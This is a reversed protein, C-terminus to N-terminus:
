QKYELFEDKVSLQRLEQFTGNAINIPKEKRAGLSDKESLSDKQAMSDKPQSESKLVYSPGSYITDPEIREISILHSLSDVKVRLSDYINGEDSKYYLYARKFNLSMRVNKISDLRGRVKEDAEIDKVMNSYEENIEDFIKSFNEPDNLYYDVSAWYDDISYGYKELIPEYIATSDSNVSNVSSWQEALLM